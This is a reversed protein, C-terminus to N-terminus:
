GGKNLVNIILLVGIIAFAMVTFQVPLMNILTTVTIIARSIQIFFNIVGQVMQVIINIGTTIINIITDLAHLM